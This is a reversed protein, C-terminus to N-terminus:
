SYPIVRQEEFPFECYLSFNRRHYCKCQFSISNAFVLFQFYAYNMFLMSQPHFANLYWGVMQDSMCMFTIYHCTYFVYELKQQMAQRLADNNAHIVKMGAPQMQLTYENGEM